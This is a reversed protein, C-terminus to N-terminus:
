HNRTGQRKAEQRKAEQRGQETAQDTEQEGAEKTIQTSSGQGQHRSPTGQPTYTKLKEENIHHSDEVANSFCFPAKCALSAKFIIASLL